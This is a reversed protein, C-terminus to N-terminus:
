ITTTYRNSMIIISHKYLIYELCKNKWTVQELITVVKTANNLFSPVRDGSDQKYFLLNFITSYITYINLYLHDCIHYGIYNEKTHIVWCTNNGIDLYRVKLFQEVVDNLLRSNLTAFFEPSYEGQICMPGAKTADYPSNLTTGSLVDGLDRM